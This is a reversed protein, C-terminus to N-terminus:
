VLSINRNNIKKKRFGLNFVDKYFVPSYFSSHKFLKIDSDINHKVNKTKIYLLEDLIKHAAPKKFSALTSFHNYATLLRKNTCSLM